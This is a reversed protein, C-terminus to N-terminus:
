KTQSDYIEKYVNCTKLLDNHKGVGVINGHDLLIIKDANKITNARQSVLIITSDKIETNIAHRLNADTAFDLASASDDLILIEPDGVLARAITLRQRQGGSFNKGGAHIAYDYKNPLENVFEESQSIKVAKNLENLTANPKRWLLNDKLTGRFLVAQQPVLGIKARLDSMKYDKVDVGDVLVKGKTTDYFRPILNVISTKGSGTGGIVGVTEGPMIDINLDRIAYNTGNGYSFYVHKFQIKPVNTSQASQVFITTEKDTVSPKTELIENIRGACTYAKIFAIIINSLSVLASTIETLYNIFAIIQGQTLGGVNVRIGGFWLVAIIAFNIITFTIPNLLSSVDVVKIGSKRLKKASAVFRREEYTQKNFARIVRAGQLNERTIESVRDLDQQTKFYLPDTIKLIIFIVCLILPSVILFLISLQLDILMSMVIYGILLLPTRMVMRILMAMATQVRNVDHTVRNNISATSFKDLEAHSFTNIHAYMDRRINSAYGAAAVSALKQCIVGMILGIRNLGIVVSGMIAIYKIDRNAVGVDIMSAIIQPIIIITITEFLKFLPALYAQKRYGAMYKFLKKM